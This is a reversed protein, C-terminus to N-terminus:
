PLKHYINRLTAHEKVIHPERDKFEFLDMTCMLSYKIHNIEDRSLDIRVMKQVYSVFISIAYLM